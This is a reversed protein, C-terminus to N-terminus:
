DEFLQKEGRSLSRKSPHTKGRLWRRVTSLTVKYKRAVALMGLKKVLTDVRGPKGTEPDFIRLGGAM